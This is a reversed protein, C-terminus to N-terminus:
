GLFEPGICRDPVPWSVGGNVDIKAVDDYWGLRLVEFYRDLHLDLAGCAGGGAIQVGIDVDGVEEARLGFVLGDWLVVAAAVVEVCRLVFPQVVREGHDGELAEAPGYLLLGGGCDGVGQIDSRQCVPVRDCGAVGAGVHELHAPKVASKPERAGADATGPKFDRKRLIIRSLNAIRNPALHPGVGRDHERRVAMHELVELELDM